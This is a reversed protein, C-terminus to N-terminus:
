AQPVKIDGGMFCNPDRIVFAARCSAKMSVQDKEFDDGNTSIEIEIERKPRLTAGRVDAVIFKGATMGPVEVIELPFNAEDFLKHGVKDKLARLDYLDMPEIFLKTPKRGTKKMVAVVREIVDISTADEGFNAKKFGHVVYNGSKLIGGLQESAGSGNLMQAELADNVCEPMRENILSAVEAADELTEQTITIMHGIKRVPFTKKETEVGSKPFAAGEAIAAANNTFKKECVVEISSADTPVSPFSAKLANGISPIKYLPERQPVPFGIDSTVPEALQLTVKFNAYNSDKFAKYAPSNMFQDALTTMKPQQKDEAGGQQQLKLLQKEALEQKEKVASLEAKMAEVGAKIDAAAQALEIMESM